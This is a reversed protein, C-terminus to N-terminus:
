RLGFSLNMVAEDMRDQTVGIYRMTIEISSHNLIKQITVADKTQRYMHYGFTKRLTHTGISDLGFERGAASMINYAQQRSIPKNKGQRSPFLYEYDEKGEIYNGLKKKLYSNIPFRREKGTKKERITIRDKGRVDRVHLKLIDSIRLGSHIGILFMIYDRENRAKMYDAIDHVLEIDKIPQVTNM